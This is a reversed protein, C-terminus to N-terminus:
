LQPLCIVLGKNYLPYLYDLFHKKLTEEELDPYLSEKHFFDFNDSPCINPDHGTCDLKASSSCLVQKLKYKFLVYNFFAKLDALKISKSEGWIQFWNCFQDRNPSNSLTGWLPLSIGRELPLHFISKRRNFFFLLLWFVKLIMAFCSKKSKPHFFFKGKGDM